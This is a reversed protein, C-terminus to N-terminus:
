RIAFALPSGLAFAHRPHVAFTIYGANPNDDPDYTMPM